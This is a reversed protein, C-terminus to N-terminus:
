FIDDKTGELGDAGRSFVIYTYDNKKYVYPRGWPDLRKTIVDLNEPYSGQAIAYNEIQFRLNNVTKSAIFGKFLSGSESLVPYFSFLGAIVIAILALFFYQLAPKKIKKYTKEPVVPAEKKEIVGKDLLSVLTKSM